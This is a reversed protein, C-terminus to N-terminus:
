QSQPSLRLSAIGFSEGAVVTSAVVSAGAVLASFLDLPHLDLM